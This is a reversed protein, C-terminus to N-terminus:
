AEGEDAARMAAAIEPYALDPRDEAAGLRFTASKGRGMQVVWGRDVFLRRMKGLDDTTLDREGGLLCARVADLKWPTVSRPSPLGAPMDVEVSPLPLGVSPSRRLAAPFQAADRRDPLRWRAGIHRYDDDPPANKPRADNRWSVVVVGVARAITRYVQDAGPVLVAYWHAGRDGADHRDSYRSARGRVCPPLAQFLVENSARLKGEVVITDGPQIDGWAFRGGAASPHWVERVPGGPWREMPPPGPLKPMVDPAVLVLDHGCSEPYIRFGLPRLYDVFSAFMASESSWPVDRIPKM